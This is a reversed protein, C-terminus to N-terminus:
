AGLANFAYNCRKEHRMYLEPDDTWVIPEHNCGRCSVGAESFHVLQSADRCYMGITGVSEVPKPKLRVIKWEPKAPTGVNRQVYREFMLTIM